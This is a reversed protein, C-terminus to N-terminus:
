QMGGKMAILKWDDDSDFDKKSTSVGAVKSGGEVKASANVIKEIIKVMEILQDNNGSMLKQYTNVHALFNIEPQDEPTFEKFIKDYLGKMRDRDEKVTTYIGFLYDRLTLEDFLQENLKIQFQSLPKAEQLSDEKSEKETESEEKNEEKLEEESNKENKQITTYINQKDM